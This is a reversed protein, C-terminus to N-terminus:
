RVNHHSSKLQRDKDRRIVSQVATNNGWLHNPGLACHFPPSWARVYSFLLYSTGEYIGTSQNDSCHLSRYLKSVLVFLSINTRSSQLFYLFYFYFCSIRRLYNFSTLSSTTQPGFDRPQFLGWLKALEGGLAKHGLRLKQSWGEFDGGKQRRKARRINSDNKLFM